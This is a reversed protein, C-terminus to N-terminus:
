QRRYVYSIGKKNKQPLKRVGVTQVQMSQLPTEDEFQGLNELIRKKKNMGCM